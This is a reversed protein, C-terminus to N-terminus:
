WLWNLTDDMLMPDVFDNSNLAGPWVACMLNTIHLFQSRM